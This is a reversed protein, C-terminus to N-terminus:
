RTAYEVVGDRLLGRWPKTANPLRRGTAVTAHLFNRYDGSEAAEAMLRYSQSMAGAAVAPFGARATRSNRRKGQFDGRNATSRLM